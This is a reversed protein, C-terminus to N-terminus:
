ISVIDTQVNGYVSWLYRICDSVSENSNEVEKDSFEREWMVTRWISELLRNINVFHERYM